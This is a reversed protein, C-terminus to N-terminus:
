EQNNLRNLQELVAAQYAAPLDTYFALICAARSGPDCVVDNFIM